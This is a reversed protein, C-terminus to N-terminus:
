ASVGPRLAAWELLTPPMTLQTLEASRGAAVVRQGGTSKSCGV